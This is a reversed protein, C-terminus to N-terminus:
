SEGGAARKRLVRVARALRDNLSRRTDGPLVETRAATRGDVELRIAALGPPLPATDTQTREDQAACPDVDGQPIRTSKPPDEPGDTAMPDAPSDRHIGAGAGVEIGLAEM